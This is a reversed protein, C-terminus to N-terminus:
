WGPLCETQSVNKSVIFYKCTAQLTIGVDTDITCKKVINKGEGNTHALKYSDVTECSWRFNKTQPAGQSILKSVEKNTANDDVGQTAAYLNLISVVFVILNKM